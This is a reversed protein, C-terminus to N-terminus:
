LGSEGTRVLIRGCEECRVVADVPERSITSLDGANVELRCGGCRRARLAAAGVGGKQGRLREYLALLDGPLGSVAQAREFATAEAEDRFVGAQKDRKALLTAADADVAEIQSRVETLDSQATELREMVELELDELETIRRQLSVMEAQLHELDRPNGVAGKDLREQDRARRAKVQEVDADAKRQERTLDDVEVQLDRARDDLAKRTASLEQLQATEPLTALRHRLTDLRSDLEQVDM